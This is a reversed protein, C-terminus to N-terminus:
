WDINIVYEGEQILGKKYLDNAVMGLSPYFNREWFLELTWSDKERANWENPDRNLWARFSVGMVKGNVKEPISDRNFDEVNEPVTIHINGRDMCGGQQQINYPRGYTKVVLDNWDELEIVKQNKVKLM